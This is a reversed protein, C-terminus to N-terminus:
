TVRLRPWRFRGTVPDGIQELGGTHGHAHGTEQGRRRAFGRPVDHVGRRGCQGRTCTVGNAAIRRCLRRESQRQRRGGEVETMSEGRRDNMPKGGRPPDNCRGRESFAGPRGSDVRREGILGTINWNYRLSHRIWPDRLLRTNEAGVCRGLRGVARRDGAGPSRSCKSASSDPPPMKRACSPGSRPAGDAIARRGEMRRARWTAVAM